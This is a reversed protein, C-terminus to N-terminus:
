KRTVGEGYITTWDNKMSVPIWGYKECSQRMSEAKDLNGNERVLDDCCLMFAASRHPNNYLVYNAMSADGGSNGFSLVPQQGIEQVIVGVKNMKLNKIIFEGGLVTEDERSFVYSLNDTDGQHSAVVTEDSGIVQAPPIDLVGEVIVRAIFRDTGSVIYVTFDNAQLFEVVQLMPKYFGEARTMNTYGPMPQKKFERIYDSFEGVSMGAFASAVAKGHDIDLGKAAVGTENMTQIKEAVEREFASAKDKYDPDETVRYKLLTYDYYNPDTENLLTGDMDFVAIRDEVPIYDTGSRDTIAAMYEVLATKPQANETWASLLDAHIRLVGFRELAAALEQQTVTGWADPSGDDAERLVGNSVAWHLASVAWGPMDSRVLIGTNEGMSVDMGLHQAWRYLMCALEARTVAQAGNFCGNEDGNAIGAGKAWVAANAYETGAADPFAVPQIVAPEGEREYLTRIVTGRDVPAASGSEARTPVAVLSLFLALTLLLSGIRKM